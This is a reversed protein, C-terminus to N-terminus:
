LLALSPRDHVATRAIQFVNVVYKRGLTLFQFHVVFKQNTKAEGSEGSKNITLHGSSVRVDSRAALACTKQTMSKLLCTQTFFSQWGNIRLNVALPM